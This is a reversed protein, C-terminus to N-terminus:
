QDQWTGQWSGQRSRPWSGQQWRQDGKGRGRGRGRGAPPAFSDQQDDDMAYFDEEKLSEDDEDESAAPAKGKNKSKPKVGGKAKCTASPAEYEGDESQFDLSVPKMPSEQVDILGCDDVTTQPTSRARKSAPRKRVVRSPAANMDGEEEDDVEERPERQSKKAQNEANAKDARIKASQLQERRLM